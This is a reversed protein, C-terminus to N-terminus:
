ARQLAARLANIQEVPVLSMPKSESLVFDKAEPVLECLKEVTSVSILIANLTNGFARQETEIKEINALASRLPSPDDNDVILHLDTGYFIESARAPLPSELKVSRLHTSSDNAYKRYLEVEDIMNCWGDAIISPPLSLRDPTRFYEFVVKRLLVEAEALKAGFTYERMKVFITHRM